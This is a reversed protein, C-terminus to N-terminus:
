DNTSQTSQIPKKNTAQSIRENVTQSTPKENIPADASTQDASDTHQNSNEMSEKKTMSRQSTTRRGTNRDQMFHVSKVLMEVVYVTQGDDKQYNRSQIRGDLGILNGKDCYEEILEARRGWAVFNIFDAEQGNDTKYTRPVAITNNLVIRGDGVERLEIDRVIRGVVTLRNM